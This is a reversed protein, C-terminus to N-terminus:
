SFTAFEMQQRHPLDLRVKDALGSETMLLYLASSIASVTTESGAFLLHRANTQIDKVGWAELLDPGDRWLQSIM